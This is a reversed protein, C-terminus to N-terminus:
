VSSHTSYAHSCRNYIAHTHAHTYTHIHTQTNTQTHARGSVSVVAMTSDHMYGHIYKCADQHTFIYLLVCMLCVRECVRKRM